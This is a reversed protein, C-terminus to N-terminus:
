KSEGFLVEQGTENIFGIIFGLQGEQKLYQYQFFENNYDFGSLFNIFKDGDISKGEPLFDFNGPLAFVDYTRSYSGSSFSGAIINDLNIAVLDTFSNTYLVNGQISIELAGIIPIFALRTPNQPDTQDYIHIGRYKDVIFLHEKSYIKGPRSLTATDGYEPQIDARLEEWTITVPVVCNESNFDSHCDEIVSGLSSGFGLGLLPIFLLNKSSHQSIKNSHFLFLVVSFGMFLSALDQWDFFGKFLISGSGIQLTEIFIDIVLWCLPIVKASFDNLGFLAASFLCMFVIHLFSPLSNVLFEPTIQHILPFQLLSLSPILEFLSHLPRLNIYFLLGILLLLGGYMISTPRNLIM